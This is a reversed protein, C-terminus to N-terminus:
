NAVNVSVKELYSAAAVKQVKHFTIVWFGWERLIWGGRQEGIGRCGDYGRSSGGGVGGEGASFRRKLAAGRGFVRGGRAGVVVAVGRVGRGASILGLVRSGASLSAM